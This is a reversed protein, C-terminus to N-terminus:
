AQTPTDPTVFERTTQINKGLMNGVGLGDRLIFLKSRCLKISRISWIVGNNKRENKLDDLEVRYRELFMYCM